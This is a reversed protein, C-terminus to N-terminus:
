APRSTEGLLWKVEESDEDFGLVDILETEAADIIFEPVGMLAESEDCTAAAAFLPACTLLLALGVVHLKNLSAM